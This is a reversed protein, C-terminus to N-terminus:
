PKEHRTDTQRPNTTDTKKQIPDTKTGSLNFMKVKLKQKKIEVFNYM